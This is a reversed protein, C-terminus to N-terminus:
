SWASYCPARILQAVTGCQRLLPRNLKDQDRASLVRGDTYDLDLFPIALCLVFRINNASLHYQFSDNSICFIPPRTVPIFMMHNRDYETSIKEVFAEMNNYLFASKDFNSPGKTLWTVYSNNNLYKITDKLQNSLSVDSTYYIQSIKLDDSRVFISCLNQCRLWQAIGYSWPDFRWQSESQTFRKGLNVLAKEVQINGYKIILSRSVM